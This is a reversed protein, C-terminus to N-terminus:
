VLLVYSYEQLEHILTSTSGTEAIQRSRHLISRLLLIEIPEFNSPPGRDVPLISLLMAFQNRDLSGSLCALGAVRWGLSVGAWRCALGAVRWGLSV